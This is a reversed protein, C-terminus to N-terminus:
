RLFGPLETKNLTLWQKLWAELLWRLLTNFYFSPASALAKYGTDHSLARYQFVRVKYESARGM